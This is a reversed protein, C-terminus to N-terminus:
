SRVDGSPQEDDCRHVKALTEDLNEMENKMINLAHAHRCATRWIQRRASRRRRHGGTVNSVAVHSLAIALEADAQTRM